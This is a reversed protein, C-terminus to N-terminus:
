WDRWTDAVMRFGGSYLNSVANWLTPTGHRITFNGKGPPGQLQNAVIAGNLTGGGRFDASGAAYVLGNITPNGTFEINGQVALIIPVDATGLSQKIDLNVTQAPNSSYVAIAIPRLDDNTLTGAARKANIEAQLTSIATLIDPLKSAFSVKATDIEIALRRFNNFTTGLALIELPEKNDSATLARLNYDNFVVDPGINYKSGDKESSTSDPRGDISIKTEFSGTIEELRQGAWITLNSNNNIVTANGALVGAGGALTLPAIASANWGGGTAAVEVAVYRNATTDLLANGRAVLMGTNAGSALVFDSAGAKCREFLVRTSVDTRTACTLYEAVTRGDNTITQRGNSSTAFAHLTAPKDHRLRQLATMLATEAHMLAEQALYSSMITRQESVATRSLYAVGLSAILVLMVTTLLSAVGRISHSSAITNM